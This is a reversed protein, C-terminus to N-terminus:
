VIYFTIHKIPIVLNLHINIRIVFKTPKELIGAVSASDASFCASKDVILFQKRNTGLFNQNTGM